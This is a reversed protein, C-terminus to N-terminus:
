PTVESILTKPLCPELDYFTIEELKPKLSFHKSLVISSISNLTIDGKQGLNKWIWDSLSPMVPNLLIAAVLLFELNLQKSEVKKLLDILLEDTFNESNRPNFNDLSYVNSFKNIWNELESRSLDSTFERRDIFKLLKKVNFVKSNYYNIFNELNFDGPKEQPATNCLYGRIFDPNIKEISAIDGGWIVHGRSTSFKKGELNYFYNPYFYDIPKYHSNAFGLATVGFAFPITNDIGFTLINIVNSKKDLANQKTDTLKQYQKGALIHCGYLVASYTFIAHNGTLNKHKYQMGWNTPISVRMEGKTRNIYKEVISLYYKPFNMKKLHALVNKNTEEEGKLFLSKCNEEILEASFYVSKKNSVEEHNYHGGCSECFFGVLKSNCTPCDGSIWGGILFDNLKPVYESEIYKAGIKKLVPLKEEKFIVKQKNILDDILETNLSEYDEVWENGRPNIFTDFEIFLKNFDEFIEEYYNHVLSFPEKKQDLAKIVVHLEDPDTGSIMKSKHGLVKLSRNILDAKLIPGAIHGLHARGNPVLGAPTIHYDYLPKNFNESIWDSLEM